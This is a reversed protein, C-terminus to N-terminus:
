CLKFVTTFTNLGSKEDYHYTFEDAVKTIILLGFHEEIANIDPLNDDGRDECVFKIFNDAEKIAYISHMADKSLQVINEGNENLQSIKNGPNFRNGFDTKEIIIDVGNYFIVRLVSESPGAHKIANTLLETVVIKSKFLIQEIDPYAPLTSGIFGLVQKLSKTLPEHAVSLEFKSSSLDPM